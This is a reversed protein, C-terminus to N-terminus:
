SLENGNSKSKNVNFDGGKITKQTGLLLCWLLGM